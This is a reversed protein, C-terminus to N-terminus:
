RPHAGARDGLAADAAAPEAHCLMAPALAQCPSDGPTPALETAWRLMQQLQNQVAYRPGVAHHCFTCRAFRLLHFPVASM